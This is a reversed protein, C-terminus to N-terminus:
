KSGLYRRWALKFGLYRRCAFNNQEFSLCVYSHVVVIEETLKQNFIYIPFLYSKSSFIM